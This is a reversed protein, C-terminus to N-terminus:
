LKAGEIPQKEGDSWIITNGKRKGVRAGRKQWYAALYAASVYDMGGAEEKADLDGLATANALQSFAGEMHNSFTAAFERADKSLRKIDDGEIHGNCIPARLCLSSYHPHDELPCRDIVYGGEALYPYVRKMLYTTNTPLIYFTVHGGDITDGSVGYPALSILAYRIKEEALQYRKANLDVAVQNAISQYQEPKYFTSMRDVEIELTQAHTCITAYASEMKKKRAMSSRKIEQPALELITGIAQDIRTIADEQKKNM